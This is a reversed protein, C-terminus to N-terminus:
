LRKPSMRYESQACCVCKLGMASTKCQTQFHSAPARSPPSSLMRLNSAGCILIFTYASSEARHQLRLNKWQRRVTRENAILPLPGSTSTVTLVRRRVAGRLTRRDEAHAHPHCRRRFWCAHRTSSALPIGDMSLSISVLTKRATAQRAVVYIHENCEACFQSRVRM